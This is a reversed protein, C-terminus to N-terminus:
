NGKPKTRILPFTNGISPNYKRAEDLDVIPIWFKRKHTKGFTDKVAVNIKTRNSRPLPFAGGWSEKQEFYVVGNTSQGTALYTDSNQGTIVGKQFLSPYLKVKDAFHYQFDETTLVQYKIWFWFLRYRIWDPGFREVNWHYAVAVNAISSPASGVNAINLYLAIATRHIEYGNHKEDTLFTTCFTPGDILSIKFKPKRRLSSFIGSVWGFLISIAFLLVSVVGENANLWNILNSGIL